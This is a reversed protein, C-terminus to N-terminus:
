KLLVIYSRAWGVLVLVGIVVLAVTLEAAVQTMLIALFLLGGFAFLGVLFPLYKYAHIVSRKFGESTNKLIGREEDYAFRFVPDAYVLILGAVIILVAAVQVPFFVLIVIFIIMWKLVWAANALYRLGLGKFTFKSGKGIAWAADYFVTMLFIVLIFASIFVAWEIKELNALNSGNAEAVSFYTDADGRGVALYMATSSDLASQSARHLILASFIILLWLGLIACADLVALKWFKKTPISKFSGIFADSHRRWYPISDQLSSDGGQLVLGKSRRRSKPPSPAKRVKPTM